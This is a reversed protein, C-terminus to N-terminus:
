RPPRGRIRVTRRSSSKGGPWGSAVGHRSHCPATSWRRTRPTTPSCGTSRATNRGDTPTRPRTRTPRDPPSGSPHPSGGDTHCGATNGTRDDPAPSPRPSCRRHAAAYGNPAPATSAATPTGTTTRDALEPTSTGASRPSGNEPPPSPPGTAASRASPGTPTRHPTSDSRAPRDTPSTCRTPPIPRRTLPAAITAPRLRFTALGGPPHGPPRENRGTPVVLQFSAATSSFVGSISSSGRRRTRPLRSRVDLRRRHRLRDVGLASCASSTFRNTSSCRSSTDPSHRPM